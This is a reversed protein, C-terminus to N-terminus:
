QAYRLQNNFIDILDMYTENAIDDIRHYDRSRGFNSLNTFIEQFTLLEYRFGTRSINYHKTLWYIVVFYKFAASIQNNSNCQLNIENVITNIENKNIYSQLSISLIYIDFFHLFNKYLRNSGNDNILLWSNVRQGNLLAYENRDFSLSFDLDFILSRHAERFNNATEILINDIKMDGHIFGIAEYATNINSLIHSVCDIIQNVHGAPKPRLNVFAYFDITEPYYNGAIYVLNIPERNRFQHGFYHQLAEDHTLELLEFQYEVGDLDINVIYEGSVFNATIRGGQNYEAVEARSQTRLKNYMAIEGLYEDFYRPNATIKFVKSRVLGAHNVTIVRCRPVNHLIDVQFEGRQVITKGRFFWKIAGGIIVLIGIARELTGGIQKLLIENSTSKFYKQLIELDFLKNLKTLQEDKIKEIENIYKEINKEGNILDLIFQYLDKENKIIDLIEEKKNKFFSLNLDRVIFVDLFQNFSTLNLCGVILNLTKEELELSFYMKSM